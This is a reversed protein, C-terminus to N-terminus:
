LHERRGGGGGRRKRRRQGGKRGSSGGKGGRYNVGAGEVDWDMKIPENMAVHRCAMHRLSLKGLEFTSHKMRM